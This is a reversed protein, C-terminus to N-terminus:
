SDYEWNRREFSDDSGLKVSLTGNGNKANLAMVERYRHKSGDEDCKWNRREYGDDSGLKVNLTTNGFQRESGDSRLIPTWLWQRGKNRRESDHKAENANLAADETPM